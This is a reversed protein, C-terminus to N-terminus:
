NAGTSGTFGLLEVIYDEVANFVTIFIDLGGDFAASGTNIAEISGM